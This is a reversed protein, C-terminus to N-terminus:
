EIIKVETPKSNKYWRYVTQEVSQYSWWYINYKEEGKIYPADIMYEKYLRKEVEPLTARKSLVDAVGDYINGRIYTNIEEKYSSLAPQSSLTATIYKDVEDKSATPVSAEPLVRAGANHIMTVADIRALDYDEGTIGTTLDTFLGNTQGITLYALPYGGLAAIDNGETMGSTISLIKAAQDITVHAEPAFLNGGIGDIAGKDTCARIYHAAWHGATDEFGSDADSAYGMYRCLMAAFEARTLSAYPRVTGDEYGEIIGKDTAENLITMQAETLTDTDTFASADAATIAAIIAATTLATLNKKM